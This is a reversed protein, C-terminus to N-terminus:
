LRDLRRVALPLGPPHKSTTPGFRAVLSEIGLTALVGASFSLPRPAREGRRGGPPNESCYGNGSVPGRSSAPAPLRARFRNRRQVQHLPRFFRWTYGPRAARVVDVLNSCGDGPEFPVFGGLLVGLFIKWLRGFSEQCVEVPQLLKGVVLQLLVKVFRWATSSPDAHARACRSRVAAPSGTHPSAPRLGAGDFPSERRSKM